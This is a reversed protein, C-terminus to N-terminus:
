EGDRERTRKRDESLKKNIELQGGGRELRSTEDERWEMAESEGMKRGRDWVCLREKEEERQGFCM